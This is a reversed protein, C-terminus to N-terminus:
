FNLNDNDNIPILNLIYMNIKFLFFCFLRADISM